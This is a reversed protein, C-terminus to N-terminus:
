DPIQYHEAISSHFLLYANNVVVKTGPALGSEIFTNWGEAPGPTVERPRDGHDTHVMVWWKGQNLILARTPIEVLMRQPSRLAVTGAEGNIWEAKGHAPLLAVSEGGGTVISGFIASVRVPIAGGGNSPSFMGVMGIRIKPLDAGYYSARLWLRNAAQLTLIPQGANVLEGDAATLTLVTADAPAKLTMMQQISKLHARANDLTAQAQAAASEAQHVAARTSLHVELQQRQIALSKQAASMQAEASRVDARSQLIAARIAPGGLTALIEGARVHMGPVVNLGAIVGAQGVNLPLVNIPEVQAYANLHPTVARAQATVVDADSAQAFSSVGQVICAVASLLLITKFCPRFPERWANSGISTM